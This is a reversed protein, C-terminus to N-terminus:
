KNDFRQLFETCLNGYDLAGLGGPSYEFIDSQYAPAESISTTDRIKTKFVLDQFNTGVFSAIDRSLVTNKKYMTLIIGGVELEPNLRKKTKEIISLLHKLGHSPLFHSQLPILVRDAAILASMTLASLSPQCDIFVYDFEGKVKDLLSKLINEKGVEQLHEFKSLEMTSPSIFLNEKVPIIPLESDSVLADFINSQYTCGCSQTLNAQPDLDLMLTKIGRKAIGAALNFVTSTKGVGGKNNVVAYINKM